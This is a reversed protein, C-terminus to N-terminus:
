REGEKRGEEEEPGTALGAMLIRELLLRGAPAYGYERSGERDRVRISRAPDPGDALTAEGLLRFVAEELPAGCSPCAGGPALEALDATRDATFDRGYRANKLHHDVRNAGVVLAPAFLVSPDAIRLVSPSLGVPGCYGAVEGASAALEEATARRVPGGLARALKPLSLPLDGRVFAAVVRTGSTGELAYFMTKMTEEPACGAQRCLEAITTAGPTRIEEMGEDLGEGDCLPAPAGSASDRSGRFGCGCALGEFAGEAGREGPVAWLFRRGEPLSEELAFTGPFAEALARFAGRLLEAAPGPEERWAALALERGRREFWATAEAPADKAFREALSRLGGDSGADAPQFGAELLVEAARAAAAEAARVGLPLLLLAGEKANYAAWGRRVLGALGGDKTKPAQGGRPVFLERM